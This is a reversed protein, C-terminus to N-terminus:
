IRHGRKRLEEIVLRQLEGAISQGFQQGVAMSEQTVVPTRELLKQGLPQRFFATLQRMEDVTFNRAYVAVIGDIMTTMADSRTNVIELMIPVMADFDRTVEPRGQTIIPKLQQMIVPLLAKFQDAVRMTVILESSQSAAPGGFLLAVALFAAAIPTKSMWVEMKSAARM